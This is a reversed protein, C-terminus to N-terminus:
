KFNVIYGEAIANPTPVSYLTQDYRALQLVMQTSANSFSNSFENEHKLESALTLLFVRRLEFEIEQAATPDVLFSATALHSDLLTKARDKANEVKIL